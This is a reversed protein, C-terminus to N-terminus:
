QLPGAAPRRGRAPRAHPVHRGRPPGPGPRRRDPDAAPRAPHAPASFVRPRPPRGDPLGRRQPGPPRPLHPHRLRLGFAPQISLALAQGADPRRRRGHWGADAGRLSRQAAPQLSAKERAGRRRLALALPAQAELRAAPRRAVDPRRRRRREHGLRHPAPGAACLGVPAPRGAAAATAAAAPFQHRPVRRAAGAPPHAALRQAPRGRARAERRGRHGAAAAAARRAVDHRRALRRRRRRRARRAARARPPRRAAHRGGDRSAFASVRQVASHPPSQAGSSSAVHSAVM